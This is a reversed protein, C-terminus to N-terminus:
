KKKGELELAKKFAKLAERKKGLKKLIAGKLNWAEASNPKLAIAKEIAKLAEEHQAKDKGELLAGALLFWGQYDDGKLQTYRKLAEAAKDFEELKIYSIGLNVWAEALSSDLEVAKAFYEAAKRYYGKAEEEKAKKAKKKGKKIKSAEEEAKKGREFYVFGLEKYAEAYKPNLKLAEKLLKEAEDLKGENERYLALHLKVQPDNPAVKAAEELAAKAKAEDKAREYVSVLLMYARPKQPDLKKAVELYKVADLGKDQNILEIAANLFVTYVGDGSFVQTGSIQLKKDLVDKDALTSDIEFAKLFYDAAGIYDESNVKALAMWLYPEGNGPESEAWAKAEELAKEINKQQIYIKTSSAHPNGAVCGTLGALAFLLAKRMTEEKRNKPEIIFSVRSLRRTRKFNKPVPPAVVVGLGPQEQRTHRSALAM